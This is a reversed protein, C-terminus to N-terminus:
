LYQAILGPSRSLTNETKKKKKSYKGFLFYTSASTLSIPIILESSIQEFSKVEDQQGLSYIYM